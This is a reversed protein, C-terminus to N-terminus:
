SFQPPEKQIYLFIGQQRPGKNVWRQTDRIQSM